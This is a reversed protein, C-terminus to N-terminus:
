NVQMSCTAYTKNTAGSPWSVKGVFEYTYTGTASEATAQGWYSGNTATVPSTETNGNPYLVIMNLPGGNPLGWASVTYTQGATVQSPGISCGPDRKGATATTAFAGAAIISLVVLTNRM